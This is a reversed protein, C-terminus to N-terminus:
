EQAWALGPFGTVGEAAPDLLVERLAACLAM